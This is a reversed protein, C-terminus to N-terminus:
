FRESNSVYADWVDFEKSMGCNACKYNTMLFWGNIKDILEFEAIYDGDIKLEEEDMWVIIHHCRTDYSCNRCKQRFKVQAM